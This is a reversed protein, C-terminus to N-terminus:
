EVAFLARQQGAGFRIGIAAGFCGQQRRVFHLRPMVFNNEVDAIIKGGLPRIKRLDTEEVFNGDAEADSIRARAIM